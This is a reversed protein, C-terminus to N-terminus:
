VGGLLEAFRDSMRPREEVAEAVLGRGVVDGLTGAAMMAAYGPLDVLKTLRSRGTAPDRDCVVVGAHDTVALADLLAPSHTTVLTHIPRRGSQRRVLAVVRAAMQPHLGNEVEEIVLLRQARVDKSLLSDASTPASLLATGVALFRLMGDSMLRAPVTNIRGSSPDTEALAVLVDGLTSRALSISQFPRDPMARLLDQLEDFDDPSREDIAAVAASLNDANRRLESDRENVYQRMLHPVPDLIFVSTLAARVAAAATHVVRSAETDQPVRAPVQTLLLRSSSFPVPPDIGRKGNFSRGVLDSRHREPPDTVLLERGDLSRRNYTVGRVVVLRESRVRVEPRVQVVVDFEYVADGYSVRCGLAFDDSGYPACGEAGGRIPEADSRSGDLADRVDEGEALRRLATLGDIANSKGSGNKGILVTLDPLRLVAATFSKFRTLRLADLVAVPRSIM